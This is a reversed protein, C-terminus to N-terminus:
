WCNDKTGTGGEDEEGRSNYTLAECIPDVHPPQPTATLTVLNVLSDADCAAPAPPTLAYWKEPSLFLDDDNAVFGLDTLTCTYTNNETYFREQRAMADLLFAHGDSRRAKRVSDQYAPYAISALIGIIAVTIMLEILTFGRIYKKM